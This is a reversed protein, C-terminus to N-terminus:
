WSYIVVQVDSSIWQSWANSGEYRIRAEIKSMEKQAEVSIQGDLILYSRILGKDGKRRVQTDM